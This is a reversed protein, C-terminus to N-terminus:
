AAVRLMGLGKLQVGSLLFCFYRNHEKKGEFQVGDEEGEGEKGGKARDFPSLGGENTRM